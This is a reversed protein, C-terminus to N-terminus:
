QGCACRCAPRRCYHPSPAPYLHPIGPSTVLLDLGAMTDGKLPDQVAFGEAAARERAPAGDDWVVVRAGGVGLARAASLGTRGLGLVLVNHADYGRAIIM